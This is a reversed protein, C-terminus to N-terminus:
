IEQRATAGQRHGAQAETPQLWGALSQHTDGFTYVLAATTFGRAHLQVKIVGPTAALDMAEVAQSLPVVHSVMANLLRRVAAHEAMISLAMDMPGCRSGLLVKENVVIDNAM